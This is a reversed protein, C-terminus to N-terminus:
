GHRDLFVPRMPAPTYAKLIAQGLRVRKLDDGTQSIADRIKVGLRRDAELLTHLRDRIKDILQELQKPTLSEPVDLVAKGQDRRIPLEREIDNIRTLIEARQRIFGELREDLPLPEMELFTRTQDLCNLYLRNMEELRMVVANQSPM